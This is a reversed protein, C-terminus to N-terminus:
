RRLGRLNRASVTPRRAMSCSSEEPPTSTWVELDVVGIRRSITSVAVTRELTSDDSIEALAVWRAEEPGGCEAMAEEHLLDHHVSPVPVGGGGAVPLSWPALDEISQAPLATTGADDAKAPASLLVFGLACPASLLLRARVGPGNARRTM